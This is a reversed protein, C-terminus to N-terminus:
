FVFSTADVGKRFGIKYRFGIKGYKTRFMNRVENNKMYFKRSSKVIDPFRHELAIGSGGWGSDFTSGVLNDLLSSVFWLYGHLGGEKEDAEGVEARAAVKGSVDDVHGGLLFERALEAGGADALDELGRAEEHDLRDCGPGERRGGPIPGADDM